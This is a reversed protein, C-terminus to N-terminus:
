SRVGESLCVYLYFVLANLILIFVHYLFFFSYAQFVNFNIKKVVFLLTSHIVEVRELCM